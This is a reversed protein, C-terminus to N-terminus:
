LSYKNVGKRIKEKTETSHERTNACARSCFRGSGFKDRDEVLKGCRECIYSM